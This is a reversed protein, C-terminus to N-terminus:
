QLNESASRKCSEARSARLFSSQVPSRGPRLSPASLRSGNGPPPQALCEKSSSQKKKKKKEKKNQINHDHNSHM